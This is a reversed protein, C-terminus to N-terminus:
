FYEQYLDKVKNVIRVTWPSRSDTQVGLGSTKEWGLQALGVASSYRVANQLRNIALDVKGLKVPLKTMQEVREELGPLLAGGGSMMIGLNIQDYCGSSKISQQIHDVLQIVVTEMARAIVEKKVPLYGEERRILIEEELRAESGIAVAYSKKIDEALDFAIHLENAITQTIHDGGLPIHELYRVQGDKFVVISTLASGVDILICGQRKQYENLVAQGAAFSTFFIDAVDYGAQHIAKTLNKLLTNQGVLLLSHVELKRGYLGLPNLSTNVDDVKYYQPFNHLVMEDMSAGLLQAQGQIRKLDQRSIIKSGRDLLPIIATSFRKEVLAGGVGLEV